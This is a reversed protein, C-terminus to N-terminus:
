TTSFYKSATRISLLHTTDHIPTIVEHSWSDLETIISPLLKLFKPQVFDNHWLANGNIKMKVQTVHQRQPFCRNSFPPFTFNSKTSDNDCKFLQPAIVQVFDLSSYLSYIRRFMPNDILSMTRIQVPCALLVLSDISFLASQTDKITALNLAVNGGHSHTVIRIRPICNYTEEYNTIIRKLEAYLQHATQERLNANLKGSWCFFYFTNLPFQIADYKNLTSAITKIKYRRNIESAPKLSPTGNFVHTFLRSYLFNTGHIWITVPPRYTDTANDSNPRNYPNILLKKKITPHQRTCGLLCICMSM